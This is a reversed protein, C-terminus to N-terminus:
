SDSLSIGSRIRILYKKIENVQCHAKYILNLVLTSSVRGQLTPLNLKEGGCKCLATCSMGPKACKCSGKAVKRVLEQCVRSVEPVKTWWPRWDDALTKNMGLLPDLQFDSRPLGKRWGFGLTTRSYAGGSFTQFDIDPFAM